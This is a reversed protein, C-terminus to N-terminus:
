KPSIVRIQDPSHVVIQPGSKHKEIRGFVEVTKGRYFDVPNINKQHFFDLVNNFIVVTFDRRYDFGFNLFTIRESKYTNVIRGRVSRVQNIHERVDRHGVIQYSGWMGERNKRAEKQAAIFLDAYKVNPPYTYLLAYGQQVLKQNVFIDDVFCYGLLRGYRDTREVDFEVRVRKGEVLERNFQTAEPGFPEPEYVFEGEKRVWTEPADIGIYRLSEGTSLIVTDGDIVKEVKIQSYDVSVCAVYFLLFGALLGKFSKVSLHFARVSLRLHLGFPLLFTKM